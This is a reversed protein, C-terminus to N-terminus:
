STRVDKQLYKEHCVIMHNRVLNQMVALCRNKLPFHSNASHPKQALTPNTWCNDPFQLPSNLSYFGRRLSKTDESACVNMLPGGFGFRSNNRAPMTRM